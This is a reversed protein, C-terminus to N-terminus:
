ETSKLVNLYLTLVEKQYQTPDDFGMFKKFDDARQDSRSLEKLGILFEECKQKVRKKV